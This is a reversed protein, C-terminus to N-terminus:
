ILIRLSTIDSGQMVGIWGARPDGLWGSSEDSAYCIRLAKIGYRGIAFKIGTVESEKVQIKESSESLENFRLSSIYKNGFISVTKACLTRVDSHCILEVHRQGQSRKFASILEFTIQAVTVLSSLLNSPCAESIALQLELPLRSLHNILKGVDSRSDNENIVDTFGTTTIDQGEPIHTASFLPHTSQAFEYISRLTLTPDLLRILKWCPLHILHATRYEDWGPFKIRVKLVLSKFNGIYAKQEEFCIADALDGLAAVVRSPKDANGYNYLGVVKYKWADNPPPVFGIDYNPDPLTERCLACYNSSSFLLKGTPDRPVSM